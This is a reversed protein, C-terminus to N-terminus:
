RVTRDLESFWNLVLNMRTLPVAGATRRLWVFQDGTRKFLIIDPHTFLAVPDTAVAQGDPWELAARMLSSDHLFFLQRGDASWSPWTGGGVSVQSRAGTQISAVEVEFMGSVSTEYAVHKGDPSLSPLLELGPTAIVPRRHGTVRDWLWIDGSTEPHREIYALWRGDASWSGPASSFPSEFLVRPAEGSEIAVTYINAVGTRNWSFAITRCDPSWVPEFASGERTIQTMAARDLHGTWLDTQGRTFVTAALRDGCAALYNFARPPIPLDTARGQGDVRAVTRQSREPIDDIYLLSGRPSIAFQAAGTTGMM